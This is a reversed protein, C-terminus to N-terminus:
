APLIDHSVGLYKLNLHVEIGICVADIGICVADVPGSLNLALVLMVAVSIPFSM